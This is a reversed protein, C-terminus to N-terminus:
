PEDREPLFPQGASAKSRLRQALHMRFGQSSIPHRFIMPICKIFNPYSLNTAILFYKRTQKSRTVGIELGHTHRNSIDQSPQTLRSRSRNPRPTLSERESAPRDAM